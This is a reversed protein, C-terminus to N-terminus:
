YVSVQGQVQEPPQSPPTVEYTAPPAPAVTVEPAHVVEGGFIEAVVESPTNLVSSLIANIDGTKIAEATLRISRWFTGMRVLELARFALHAGLSLMERRLREPVGTAYTAYGLAVAGAAANV